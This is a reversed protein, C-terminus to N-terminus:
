RPQEACCLASFAHVRDLAWRCASFLETDLPAVTDILQNNILQYFEAQVAVPLQAAVRALLQRQRNSYLPTM